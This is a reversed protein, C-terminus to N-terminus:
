WWISDSLLRRLGREPGLCWAGSGQSLQRGLGARSRNLEQHRSVEELAEM